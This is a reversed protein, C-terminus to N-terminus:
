GRGAIEWGDVQEMAVRLRVVLQDDEPLPESALNRATGGAEGAQGVLRLDGMGGSQAILQRRQGDRTGPWRLLLAVGSPPAGQSTQVAIVSHQIPAPWGPSIRQAADRFREGAIGLASGAPFPLPADAFRLEVPRGTRQGTAPRRGTRAEWRARVVPSRMAWIGAALAGLHIAAFVASALPAEFAYIQRFDGNLGSSFDLLPYLILVNVGSILAFQSLLDNVPVRFPPKRLLAASAAGACLVVNVVTGAAAVVTHQTLSFPERYSVFGAFGYFGFDTVRGGFAWVAVAHGLEHLAVAVPLLLFVSAQSVLLRDQQTYSGDWLVRWQQIVRYLVYVAIAISVYIILSYTGLDV